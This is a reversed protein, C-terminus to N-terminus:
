DLMQRAEANETAEISEIKQLEYSLKQQKELLDLM